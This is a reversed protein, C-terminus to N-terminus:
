RVKIGKDTNETLLLKLNKIDDANKKYKTVGRKSSLILAIKWSPDKLEKLSEWRFEGDSIIVYIRKSSKKSAKIHNMVAAISTGGGIRIKDKTKFSKSIKIEEVQSTFTYFKVGKPFYKSATKVISIALDVEEPIVSSSVDLYLAIDEIDSSKGRSTKSPLPITSYATKKNPRMYSYQSRPKFSTVWSRLKDYWKYDVYYSEVQKEAVGPPTNLSYNKCSEVLEELINLYDQESFVDEINSDEIDLMPVSVTNGDKTKFDISSINEMVEELDEGMFSSESDYGEGDQGDEQRESDQEGSSQEINSQEGSGQKIDNQEESDQQESDLKNNSQMEGNQEKNSEDKSMKPQQSDNSIGSNDQTEVSSSSEGNGLDESTKDSTPDPIDQKDEIDLLIEDFKGQYKISQIINHVDKFEERNENFKSATSKFIQDYMFSIDTAFWIPSVSVDPVIEQKEVNRVSAGFLERSFGYATSYRLMINNSLFDSVISNQLILARKLNKPYTSTRISSEITKSGMLTQLIERYILYIAYSAPIRFFKDGVYFSKGTFKVVLSDGKIYKFQKNIFVRYQPSKLIISRRLAEIYKKRSEKDGEIIGLKDIEKDYNIEEKDKFIDLELKGEYEGKKNEEYDKFANRLFSM